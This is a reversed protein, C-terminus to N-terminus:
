RSVTDKEVLGGIEVDQYIGTLSYMINKFTVNQASVSDTNGAFDLCCLNSEM